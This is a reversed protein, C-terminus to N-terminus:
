GAARRIPKMFTVQAAELEDAQRRRVAIVRDMSEKRVLAAQDRDWEGARGPWDYDRGWQKWHAPAKTTRGKATRWAEEVSRREVPLHLYVEFAAWAANSENPRREYPRM